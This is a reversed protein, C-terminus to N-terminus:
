ISLPPPAAPQSSIPAERPTFYQQLGTVATGGRSPRLLTPSSDFVEDNLAAGTLSGRKAGNPAAKTAPM